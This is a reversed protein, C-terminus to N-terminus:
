ANEFIKLLKEALEQSPKLDDNFESKTIFFRLMSVVEERVIDNMDGTYMVRTADRFLHTPIFETNKMLGIELTLIIRQRQTDDYRM